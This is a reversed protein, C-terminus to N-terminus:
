ASVEGLGDRLAGPRRCRGAPGTVHSEPLDLESAAPGALRRTGPPSTENDSPQSCSQSPAHIPPGLGSWVPNPAHRLGVKARARDM